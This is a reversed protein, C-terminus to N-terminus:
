KRRSQGISRSKTQPQKKSNDLEELLSLVLFGSILFCPAGYRSAGAGLSVYGLYFTFVVLGLLFEKSRLRLISLFFGALFGLSWFVYTFRSIQNFFNSVNLFVENRCFRNSERLKSIFTNAPESIEDYRGCQLPSDYISTNFTPLAYNKIESGISYSDYGYREPALGLIASISQLRQEFRADRDSSDFFKFKTVSTSNPFNNLGSNIARNQFSSWSLFFTLSISMSVLIASIIQKRQKSFRQLLAYSTSGIVAIGLLTFTSLALYGIVVYYIFLRRDIKQNNELSHIRSVFDLSLSIIFLLLVQMLVSTIYGRLVLLTFVSVYLTHKANLSSVREFASATLHIGLALLFAQFVFLPLLFNNLTVIKIFFPYGPSRLFHFYEFM